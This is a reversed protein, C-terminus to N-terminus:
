RLSGAGFAVAASAFYRWNAECLDYSRAANHLTLRVGELAILGNALKHQIAQFKGIPQGFKKRVKAFEVAMEFARKAAGYGRSLTGLASLHLLDRLAVEDM